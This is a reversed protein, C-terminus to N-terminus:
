AIKEVEEDFQKKWFGTYFENITRHAEQSFGVFECKINEGSQSYIATWFIKKRKKFQAFGELVVDGTKPNTYMEGQFELLKTKMYRQIESIIERLLLKKLRVGTLNECAKTEKKM